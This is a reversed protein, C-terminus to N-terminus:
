RIKPRAGNKESGGKPQLHTIKLVRGSPDSLSPFIESDFRWYRASETLEADVQKGKLFLCLSNKKILPKSLKLLQPLPKLARATVADFKINHLSEIRQHHLIAALGLEAIAARLFEAKKGISEILHIEFNSMISLALGPFGAGSGLDAITNCDAPIFKLLQASDLFHRNWICPLTSEAILNFRANWAGLLEAYRDFKALTEHSVSFYRLFEARGAPDIELV